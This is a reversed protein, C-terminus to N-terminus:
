LINCFGSKLPHMVLIIDSHVLVMIHELITVGNKSFGLLFRFHILFFPPPQISLNPRKEWWNIDRSLFPPQQRFLPLLLDNFLTLWFGQIETKPNRVLVHPDRSAHTSTLALTKPHPLYSTSHFQM